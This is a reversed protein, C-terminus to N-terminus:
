RVSPRVFRGATAVCALCRLLLLGEEKEEREQTLSGVSRGGGVM